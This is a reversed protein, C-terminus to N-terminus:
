ADSCARSGKSRADRRSRPKWGSFEAHLEIRDVGRLVDPGVLRGICVELVHERMELGIELHVADVNQVCACLRCWSWAGAFRKPRALAQISRWRSESPPLQPAVSFTSVMGSVSKLNKEM